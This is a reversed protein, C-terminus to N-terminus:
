ITVSTRNEVGSPAAQLTPRVKKANVSTQHITPSRLLTHVPTLVLM